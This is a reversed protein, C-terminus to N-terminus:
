ENEKAKIINSKDEDTTLQIVKADKKDIRTFRGLFFGLIATVAIIVEEPLIIGYSKLVFVLITVIPITLITVSAFPNETVLNPM